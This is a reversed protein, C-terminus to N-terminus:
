GYSVGLWYGTKSMPECFFDATELPIYSKMNAKFLRRHCTGVTIPCTLGHCVAVSIFELLVPFNRGNM